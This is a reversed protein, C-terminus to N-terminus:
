LIQTEHYMGEGEYKWGHLTRERGTQSVVVRWRQGLIDLATNEYVTLWEGNIRTQEVIRSTLTRVLIPQTTM